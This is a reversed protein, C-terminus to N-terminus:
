TRLKLSGDKTLKKMMIMPVANSGSFFEWRGTKIYDDRKERWLPRLAEPCKSQRWAYVHDDNVLPIVHNIARLPPLPTENADKCIDKAYDILEQRYRDILDSEPSSGKLELIQTQSGRIPLPLLSRIKIESPNFGLLVQHQFLFPMGLIVDYSDLNAIDFQRPGSIDQYKLDATASAKVVSRSGSVALQLPIPKDLLDYKLKLQDVVTTSLFDTLSGSDLLARCPRDNIMVVVVLARPLIRTPTRPRASNRHLTRADPLDTRTGGCYVDSLSIDEIDPCTDHDPQLEM